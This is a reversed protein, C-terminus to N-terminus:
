ATFVTGRVASAADSALFTLVEAVEDASTANRVQAEAADADGGRGVGEELSRRYLPTDVDGPCLENVRIGRPGLNRDLALALGHIGGKSAGYSFSGSGVARGAKSGVLIIVGRGATLMVEGAHKAVLFAGKLNIDIVQDWMAETHDALEALQGRMIGAAVILVDLGGLSSTADAVARDVQAEDAVDAQVFVIKGAGHQAARALSQGATADVDIIAVDAGAASLKLSTARGIGSAGGSVAVRLGQLSTMM